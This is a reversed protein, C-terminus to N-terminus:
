LVLLKGGKREFDRRSVETEIAALGDASYIDRYLLRAQKAIKRFNQFSLAAIDVDHSPEAVSALWSCLMDKRNLIKNVRAELLLYGSSDELTKDFEDGTLTTVVIDHHVPSTLSVWGTTAMDTDASFQVAPFKKGTKESRLWLITDYIAALKTMENPCVDGTAAEDSKKQESFILDDRLVIWLINYTGM